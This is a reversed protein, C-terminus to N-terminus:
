VTAPTRTLRGVAGPVYMTRLPLLTFFTTTLHCRWPRPGCLLAANPMHARQVGHAAIGYLAHFYTYIIYDDEIFQCASHRGIAGQSQQNM